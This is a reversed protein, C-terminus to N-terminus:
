KTESEKVILDAAVGEELAEAMTPAFVGRIRELAQFKVVHNLITQPSVESTDCFLINFALADASRATADLASAVPECELLKAAKAAEVWAKEVIDLSKNIQDKDAFEDAKSRLVKLREQFQNFQSM